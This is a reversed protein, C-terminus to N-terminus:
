DYPIHPHADIFDQAWKEFEKTFIEERFGRIVLAYKQLSPMQRRLVQTLIYDDGQYIFSEYAYFIYEWSELVEFVMAEIIHNKVINNMVVRADQPFLDNEKLAYQLLYAYEKIEYIDKSFHSYYKVFLLYEELDKEQTKQTSLCDFKRKSFGEPQDHILYARLVLLEDLDPIYKKLVPLVVDVVSIVSYQHHLVSQVRLNENREVYRSWRKIEFLDTQLSYWLPFLKFFISNEM